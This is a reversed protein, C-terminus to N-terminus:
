GQRVVSVSATACLYGRIRDLLSPFLHDKPLWLTVHESTVPEYVSMVLVPLQPSKERIAQALEVGSMGPMLFDTVVLDFAVVSM